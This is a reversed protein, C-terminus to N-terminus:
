EKVKTFGIIAMTYLVETSTNKSIQPDLLLTPVNAGPAIKKPKEKQLLNLQQTLSM